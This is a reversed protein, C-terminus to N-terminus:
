KKGILQLVSNVVSGLASEDIAIETELAEVADDIVALELEVAVVAGTLEAQVLVCINEVEVIIQNWVSTTQNSCCGTIACGFVCCSVCSTPNCAVGYGTAHCDPIGKTTCNNFCTAQATFNLCNTITQLLTPVQHENRKGTTTLSPAPEYIGGYSTNYCNHFLDGRYTSYADKQLLYCYVRGIFQQYQNYMSVSYMGLQCNINGSSACKRPPFCDSPCSSNYCSNNNSGFYTTSDAPVTPQCASNQGVTIYYVNNVNQFCHSYNTGNVTCTTATRPCLSCDGVCYSILSLLLVLL